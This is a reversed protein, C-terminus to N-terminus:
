LDARPLYPQQGWGDAERAGCNLSRVSAGSRSGWAGRLNRGLTQNSRPPWLRCPFDGVQPMQRPAAFGSCADGIAGQKKHTTKKGARLRCFFFFVGRLGLQWLLGGRFFFGFRDPCPVTIQDAAPTVPCPQRTSVRGSMLIAPRNFEAPGAGVPDCVRCAAGTRTVGGAGGSQCGSAPRPAGYRKSM